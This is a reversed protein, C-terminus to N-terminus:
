AAVKIGLKALVIGLKGFIALLVVAVVLLIAVVGGIKWLLGFIKQQVLQKEAAIRFNRENTAERAIEQGDAFLKPQDVQVLQDREKVVAAQDKKLQIIEGRAGSISTALIGEEQVQADASKELEVFKPMLETPINPMLERILQLVSASHGAVRDASAQAEQVKTEARVTTENARDIAASLRKSTAIVRTPDPAKYIKPRTVCSSLLVAAAALLISYRM